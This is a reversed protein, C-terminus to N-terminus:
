KKLEPKDSADKDLPRDPADAKPARPKANLDPKPQEPRPPPTLDKPLDRAVVPSKPITVKHPTVDQASPSEKVVAGRDVTRAPEVTQVKDPPVVERAPEKPLEKAPTRAPERPTVVERPTVAEKPEPSARPTVAARPAVVDRPTTGAKPEPGAGPAASPSEWQSRKDQYAHVEKAQSATAARTKADLTDYKFPTTKQAVVERMPRAVQAQRRDKEPLRAVQATMAEYTRAPRLAKDDRRHEYETRQNDAWQRDDRHTWQQHVYIPDYWDHHDRVAYWPYFGEQAYESGYYDGFYYQHRGPSVFLNLTMDDLDVAFDPSYQFDGRGYLSPPCYVPLFAVGRRDLPYDWYGEAYVWGRPTRIYQAPVWVWNPRAAEWFGPRWAYRGEHRIWCGPIWVSAPSGAGQPGEELSAPPAPLYEIEETDAATWFGAIWQYGGASRAWYGPV